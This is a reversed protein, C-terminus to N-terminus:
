PHLQSDYSTTATSITDVILVGMVMSTTTHAHPPPRPAPHHVSACSCHNGAARSAFGLFCWRQLTHNKFWLLSFNCIHIHHYRKFLLFPSPHPLSFFFGDQHRSWQQSTFHRWGTAPFCAPYLHMTTVPSRVHPWRSLPLMFPLQPPLLSRFQWRGVTGWLVVTSIGKPELGHEVMLLQTIQSSSMEGTQCENKEDMFDPHSTVHLSFRRWLTELSSPHPSNLANSIEPMALLNWNSHWIEDVVMRFLIRLCHRTKILVNMISTRM